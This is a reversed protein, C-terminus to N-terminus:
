VLSHDNARWGLHHSQHTCSCSAFEDEDHHHGWTRVHNWVSGEEMRQQQQCRQFIHSARRQQKTAFDHRVRKAVGHVTAQWSGRDMPNELCSYQLPNGNEEGPCRGLGPIFGTDGIDGTNTPLNRVVLVMQSALIKFLYSIPLQQTVCSTWHPVRVIYFFPISHPHPPLNLPLPCKYKRSIWLTHCFGVYCQLTFM